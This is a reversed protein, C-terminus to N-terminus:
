VTRHCIANVKGTIGAGGSALTIVMNANVSIKRPTPFYITREGKLPIDISFVTTAGDEIKLNGGVPDTAGAYSYSVGEITHAVSATASYTIVAPTAAAPAHVDASSMLVPTNPLNNLQAQVTGYTASASEIDQLNM